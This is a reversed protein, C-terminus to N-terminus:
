DSFLTDLKDAWEDQFEDLHQWVTDTERAFFENYGSGVIGQWNSAYRCKDKKNALPQLRLRYELMVGEVEMSDFGIGDVDLGLKSEGARGWQYAILHKRDFREKVRCGKPVASAELALVDRPDDAIPGSAAEIQSLSVPTAAYQQVREIIVPYSRPPAPALSASTSTASCAALLGSSLFLLVTLSVRQLHSGAQTEAPEVKTRM